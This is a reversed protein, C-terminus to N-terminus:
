LSQESDSGGHNRGVLLNGTLVAVAVVGNVLGTRDAKGEERQVLARVKLM